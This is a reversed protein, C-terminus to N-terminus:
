RRPHIVFAGFIVPKPGGTEGIEPELKDITEPFGIWFSNSPTWHFLHYFTTTGNWLLQMVWSAFSLIGQHSRYNKALSFQVPKALLPQSLQKATVEYHDYFL